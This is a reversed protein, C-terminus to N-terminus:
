RVTAAALPVLADDAQEATCRPVVLVPGRAARLIGGTMSGLVVRRLPGYGRSGIVLLDAEDSASAVAEAVPGDALRREVAVEPGAATAAATAREITGVASEHMANELATYGLGNAYAPGHVYPPAVVTVLRLAAGASRAIRAAIRAVRETEPGGDVAVTVLGFPRHGSVDAYGAPAIAVACPAAHIVADATTGLVVRGIGTRHTSGLVILAADADEAARHLARAPSTGPVAAFTAGPVDAIIARAEDLTREASVGWTPDEHAGGEPAPTLATYSRVHLVMPRAGTALALRRGLAVADRAPASGDFGIVVDSYM